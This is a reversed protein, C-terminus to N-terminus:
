FCDHISSLNNLISVSVYGNLLAQRDTSEEAEENYHGEVIIRRGGGPLPDKTIYADRFPMKKSLKRNRLIGRCADLSCGPFNINFIQGDPLPHALTEELIERLFADTVDHPGNSSESLAIGLCGQFSAEFAAGVTGSYQVDSAANYGHNIGCLVAYPKEEMVNLIGARVCDAPTGTCSFATVGEVPFDFPYIDMPSRLTICHSSASREGSPAVVYVEGFERAAMALRRIGDAEIGDDNTILIKGM